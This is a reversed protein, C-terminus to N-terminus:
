FKGNLENKREEGRRRTDRIRVFRFVCVEFNAESFVFHLPGYFGRIPNAVTRKAERSQQRQKGTKAGNARRTQLRKRNTTM